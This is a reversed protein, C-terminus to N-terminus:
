GCFTCIKCLNLVNKYLAWTGLKLWSAVSFGPSSLCQSHSNGDSKLKELLARSDSGTDRHFKWTKFWTSLASHENKLWKWFMEQGYLIGNGWGRLMPNTMIISIYNTIWSNLKPYSYSNSPSAGSFHLWFHILCHFMTSIYLYQFATLSYSRQMRLQCIQVASSRFIMFEM